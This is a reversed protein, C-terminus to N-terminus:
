GNELMRKVTNRISQYGMLREALRAACGECLYVTTGQPVRDPPVNHLSIRLTKPEQELCVCCIDPKTQRVIILGRKGNYSM